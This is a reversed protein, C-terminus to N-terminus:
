AGIASTKAYLVKIILQFKAKSSDGTDRYGIKIKGDSPDYFCTYLSCYSCRTGSSTTATSPSCAIHGVVGIPTYGPVVEPEFEDWPGNPPANTYVKKPEWPDKVVDRIILLGGFGSAGPPTFQGTM